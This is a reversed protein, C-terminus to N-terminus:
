RELRRVNLRHAESRCGDLRRSARPRRHPAGAIPPATSWTPSSRQRRTVPTPPAADLVCLDAPAGPVLRGLLPEDLLGGAVAANTHLLSPCSAFGATPDRRGGAPSSPSARLARLMASSMGDTGLGIRCGDAAARTWTSAASATTPTPSRTTSSSRTATPGRRRRRLRPPGRARWPRPEDLLGHAALAGSPRRRPRAQLDPTSGTRPWTSTAAAHGAPAPRRGGLTEDTVTFSAHLGLMGRVRPHDQRSASSTAPEGGPRRLAEDHGNRDSVEYCLVASLGAEEVEGAILELSGGPLVALRPPRLGHHLGWRICDALALAGVPPGDRPRPGPRAAVVPRRSYRRLRRRRRGPDLGRGLSSYFHHHLNVLGPLILGGAADVREADPFRAALEAPPDWRRCGVARGSSRATSSVEPDAFATIV